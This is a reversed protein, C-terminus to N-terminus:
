MEQAEYSELMSLVERAIMTVDGAGITLIIDGPRASQAAAAPVASWSHIYRVRAPDGPVERAVLEGTVGPVPDERAAYVDMVIIEDAESLAKGFESSFDLTRSYLHPQFVAIVRGQGVITRATHVAAAVKAPNHAYDDYVLVDRKEGRFEFRRRSGTFSEIGSIATAPDIGVCTAAAYAAASNLANHEGPVRLTVKTTFGSRSDVIDYAVRGAVHRINELRITSSASQGYDIVSVSDRQRAYEALRAAGPDDSCVVLAGDDKVRDAFRQFAQEVNEYTGYYDLHDPQVSTVISVVPSYVLFSEDSEDAEAVFLDGSGHHANTGAGVLEGGLAFSPDVGATQLVVTLISSTTTKGNTGAVALGRRGTMLSALAQSRHLVRLGLARAESLESNSEAIASSVVVTDVHRVRDKDFGVHIDAGQASLAALVPVQKADSGSVPVGRDIMIRAIGSMGVGGIGLFHVRGLDDLSPVPASLDFRM